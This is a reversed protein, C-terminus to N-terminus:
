KKNIKDFTKFFEIFVFLAYALALGAILIEIWMILGRLM